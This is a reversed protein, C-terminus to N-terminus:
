LPESGRLACGGPFQILSFVGNTDLFGTIGIGSIVVSGTIQGSDNIGTPFLPEGGPFSIPTVVGNSLLIADALALKIPLVFGLISLLSASSKM